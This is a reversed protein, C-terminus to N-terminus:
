DKRQLIRYYAKATIQYVVFYLTAFVLVAGVTCAFFLLTNSMNFARLLICLVRFAVAIHVVAAGLPLFFVMLVQKQITSKVEKQSMGVKQMISFRERDDFGETIQKYYIILVTAILFLAVFFIGVFLISGYVRYFDRRADDKNDYRHIDLGANSYTDRLTNYYSNQADADGQINYRIIYDLKYYSVIQTYDRHMAALDAYEPVVLTMGNTMDITNIFRPQPISKKVRYSQSNLTITDGQLPEGDLAILAEGSLLLENAGTIRNYDALTICNLEYTKMDFMDVFTFADGSRTSACSFSYYDVADRLTISHQKAHDAATQQVLAKTSEEANFTVSVHYPFRTNLTEEEGVFLCVTSSLTVLLCTSLICINALGTANQKMRYLMGSVSIFNNPKYYFGKNKRLLKLWVISGAIFLCYTGIIVLLVSFLFLSVADSPTQVMWALGYGAGLTLVGLLAILWRSKPEREGTKSSHLLAIPDTRLIVVIDFILILFFAAAFLTVTLGVSYLPIQFTLAAPMAVIKLFFLFMLQSFLAGGVIGVLICLAATILVEWTLVVSIHRKEMGLISFLGFEKKRRKMIFSNIYYLVVLSLLGCIWSSLMLIAGMTGSGEANSQGVMISISSLIYFLSVILTGALLYPLYINRNKVMNTVALRPYLLKNM